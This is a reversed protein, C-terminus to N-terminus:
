EKDYTDLFNYQKKEDHSGIICNLNVNELARYINEEIDKNKFSKLLKKIEERKSLSKHYEDTYKCTCKNFRLNNYECWNIIDEEKVLCLPRILELGVFNKSKLKPMMTKVEAGYFISLLTTEIFDNFHHGLAIKNCGIERAKDYLYGRRMKACLYCPYGEKVNNIIKFIPTEFIELNINLDKITKKMKDLDSKKYGPDMLVYRLNFKIKGHKQAEELCKALLVSDKGGSICVMINDNESILEYKKIAKLFKSYITKKYKTIISREIEQYKEM